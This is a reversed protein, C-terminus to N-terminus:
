SRVLLVPVSCRAMVKAAVSGLLMNKLAGEGHSGMILLDYKGTEACSAIETAPDGVRDIFDAKIGEHALLSRVPELVTRAYEEYYGWFRPPV